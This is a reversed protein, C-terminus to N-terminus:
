IVKWENGEDNHTAGFGIGGVWEVASVIALGQAAKRIPGDTFYALAAASGLHLVTPDVNPLMQGLTSDVISPGFIAGAIMLALGQISEGTAKNVLNSGDTESM